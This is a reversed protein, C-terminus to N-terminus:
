DTAVLDDERPKNKSEHYVAHKYLDEAGGLMRLM